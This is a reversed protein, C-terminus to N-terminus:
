LRLCIIAKPQLIKGKQDFWGDSENSWNQSVAM